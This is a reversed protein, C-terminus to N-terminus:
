FIIKLVLFSYNLYWPRYYYFLLLSYNIFYNCKNNITIMYIIFLIYIYEPLGQFLQQFKRFVEIDYKRLIETHFGHLAYMEQTEHNGRLIHVAAPDELKIVLLSMVIEFAHQGRDM